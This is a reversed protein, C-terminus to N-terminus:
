NTILPMRGHLCAWIYWLLVAAVRDWWGIAFLLSLGVAFGLLADIFTPTDCVALINPFLKLLPSKSGDALAGVNSVLESGWPMLEVFHIILYIGFTVRYLSYQGGTWSSNM